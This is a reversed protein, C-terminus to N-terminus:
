APTMIFFQYGFYEPYKGYMDIEHQCHEAVGLAEPNGVYRARFSELAKSLPAYYTESWGSAPLAFDHLLRYGCDAVSKRRAQVDSADSEEGLLIKVLEAPPNDHFWCFESVVLFGGPKLLRRWATLGNAFGMIFIAGESWIVDFSGDPFPLDNMDGVETTIRGALGLEAARSVLQAIFPAHNDMATIHATTLQALDITQSGSGCGIDLLQTAPSLPPLLSLAHETSERKGPGQRPISEYIEHFYMWFNDTSM